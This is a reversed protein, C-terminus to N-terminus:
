RGRISSAAEIDLYVLLLCPSYNGWSGKQIIARCVHTYSDCFSFKAGFAISPPFFFYQPLSGLIRSQQSLNNLLANVGGEEILSNVAQNLVYVIM